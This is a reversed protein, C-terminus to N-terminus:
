GASRARGPGASRRGAARRPRRAAGARRSPRGRRRAPERARRGAGPGPGRAPRRRGRRRGDVALGLPEQGRAVAPQAAPEVVYERDVPDAGVGHQAAPGPARADDRGTPSRSRSSIPSRRGRPARGSRRPRRRPGRGRRGERRGVETEVGRAVEHQGAAEDPLAQELDPCHRVSALKRQEAAPSSRPSECRRCPRSPGSTGAPRSGRARPADVGHAVAPEGTRDLCPDAGRGRGRSPAGAASGGSGGARAGCRTGRTRRAPPGRRCSAASRRARGAGLVQEVEVELGQARAARGPEYRGLLREEEHAGVALM